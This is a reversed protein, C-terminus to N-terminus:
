TVSRACAAAFTEGRGVSFSIGDVARVRGVVRSVLVGRKVPFHKVLGRVELVPDAM